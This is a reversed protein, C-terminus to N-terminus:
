RRTLGQRKARQFSTGLTPGPRHDQEDEALHPQKRLEQEAVRYQSVRQYECTDCSLGERTERCRRKAETEVRPRLVERTQFGAPANETAVDFEVAASGARSQLIAFPM